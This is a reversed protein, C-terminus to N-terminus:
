GAMLLYSAGDYLNSGTWGANACYQDLKSAINAETGTLAAFSESLLETAKKTHDVQLTYTVPIHTECTWQARFSTPTVAAPEAMVPTAVTPVDARMFWLSASQDDENLYIKTVPKGLLGAGGAVDALTGDALMNLKANPLTEDTLAHNNEGYLDGAQNYDSASGDAPVITALQIAENNPTNDAWREAIYTFHTVLVGEDPIFRDWGQRVRNEMIFYENDNLPSVIKIARDDGRNLVPLTYQTNHQPEILDLWGMFNKEYASYGIPTDGSIVAGNYCGHDMLSWDGMGYYGHGYTTEYWDPLGLCHSFEHCFTGIGDMVMGEDSPGNLECFVSYRNIKTGDRFIHGPGLGYEARRDLDSQCPWVSEPVTNSAQAQGVGAYLIILVDVEGDGDNDYQSWDVDGDALDVAEVVMDNLYYDQYLYTNDVISDGGYHARERSLDYIGYLDYQPSYKGNSQDKFYQLVSKAGSNFQQEFDQVTHKMKVDDYGVLLIPVRPSGVTPIQPKGVRRPRIARQRVQRMAAPAIDARQAEIYALEAASREGPNHALMASKHYCYDGGATRTVSLGDRTVFYHFNEDGVTQVALTTGDSQTVNVFGRMAPVALMVSWSCLAALLM